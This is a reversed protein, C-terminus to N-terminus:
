VYGIMIDQIEKDDPSTGKPWKIFVNDKLGDDFYTYNKDDIVLAPDLIMVTKMGLSHLEEFYEEIGKFNSTGKLYLLWM